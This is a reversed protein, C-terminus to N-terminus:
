GIIYEFAGWPGKGAICRLSEIVRQQNRYLELLIVALCDLMISEFRSMWEQTASNPYM